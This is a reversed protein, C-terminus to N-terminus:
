KILLLHSETIANIWHKVNPEITYFDCPLLEKEVGNEDEYKVHGEVNLLLAPTKTIHEKLQQQGAIRIAITNGAANQFIPVASVDKPTNHLQKLNM